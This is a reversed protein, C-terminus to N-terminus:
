WWGSMESTTSEQEGSVGEGFKGQTAIIPEKPKFIAEKKWTALNIM